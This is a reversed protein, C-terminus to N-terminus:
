EDGKWVDKFTQYADDMAELCREVLFVAVAPLFVACLVGRRKFPCKSEIFTKRM